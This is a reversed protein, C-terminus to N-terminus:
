DGSPYFVSAQAQLPDYVEGGTLLEVHGLNFHCCVGKSGGQGTAEEEAEEEEEGVVMTQKNTKIRHDSWSTAIVHSM